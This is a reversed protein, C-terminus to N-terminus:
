YRYNMLKAKEVYPDKLQRSLWNHSSVGKANKLKVSKALSCSTCIKRFQMVLRMKIFGTLFM